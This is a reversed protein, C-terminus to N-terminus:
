LGGGLVWGDATKHTLQQKNGAEVQECGYTGGSAGVQPSTLMRPVVCEQVLWGAIAKKNAVQPACYTWM